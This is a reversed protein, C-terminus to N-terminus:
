KVKLSYNALGPKSGQYSHQIPVNVLLYEKEEEKFPAYMGARSGEPMAKLYVKASLIHASTYVFIKFTNVHDLKDWTSKGSAMFLVHGLYDQDLSSSLCLDSYISCM